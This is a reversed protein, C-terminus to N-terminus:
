QLPQIHSCFIMAITPHSQLIDNCPNSTLASLKVMSCSCRKVSMEGLGLGRVELASLVKLLLLMLTAEGM